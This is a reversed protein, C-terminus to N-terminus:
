STSLFRRRPASASWGCRGLNRLSVRHYRGRQEGRQKPEGFRPDGLGDSDRPAVPLPHRGRRRGGDQRAVSEVRRRREGEILLEAGRRAERKEAAIRGAGGVRCSLTHGKAAQGCGARAARQHDGVSEHEVIREAAPDVPVAHGRGRDLADLSNAAARAVQKAAVRHGAHNADQRPSRATALKSEFAANGGYLSILGPMDHPAYFSVQWANAERYMYEYYPYQPNFNKIWEGNELRGRMFRTSPDFVNRYNKSRQMFVKYNETDGLAEALKAVSYDDYAYELTKSGGAKAKTEVHPNAIDPDAIYGKQIYEKIHPRAGGELNANRLLLQYTGKVDFDTIGRL